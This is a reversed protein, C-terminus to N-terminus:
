GSYLGETGAYNGFYDFHMLNSFQTLHAHSLGPCHGHQVAGPHLPPAYPVPHPSLLPLWVNRPLFYTMQTNRVTSSWRRARRASRTFKSWFRSSYFRSLIGARATSSTGCSRLRCAVVPLYLRFLLFVPRLTHHTQDIPLTRDPSSESCCSDDGTATRTAAASVM